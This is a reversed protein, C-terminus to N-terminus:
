GCDHWSEIVGGGARARSNSDHTAAFTLSLAPSHTNHKDAYARVGNMVKGHDIQAALAAEATRLSGTATDLQKKVTEVGHEYGENKARQM